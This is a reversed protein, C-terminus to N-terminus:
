RQKMCQVAAGFPLVRVSEGQAVLYALLAEHDEKSVPTHDGGVGHFGVACCAEALWALALAAMVFCLVLSKMNMFRKLSTNM